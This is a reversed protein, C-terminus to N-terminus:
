CFPSNYLEILNKQKQQQLTIAYAIVIVAGIMILAYFLLELKGMRWGSRHCTNLNTSMPETVTGKM